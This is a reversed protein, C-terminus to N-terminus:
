IGSPHLWLFDLCSFFHQPNTSRTDNLSYVCPHPETGQLPSQSCCCMSQAAGPAPLLTSASCVLVELIETFVWTYCPTALLLFIDLDSVSCPRVLSVCGEQPWALCIAPFTAVDSSPFKWPNGVDSPLRLSHVDFVVYVHEPLSFEQKM